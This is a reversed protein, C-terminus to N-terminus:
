GLFFPTKDEKTVTDKIEIKVFPKQEDIFNMVGQETNLYIKVVQKMRIVEGHPTFKEALIANIEFM